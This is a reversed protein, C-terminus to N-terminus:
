PTTCLMVIDLRIHLAHIVHMASKYVRGKMVRDITHVRQLDQVNTHLFYRSALVAYLSGCKVGAVVNVEPVSVRLGETRRECLASTGRVLVTRQMSARAWAKYTDLMGLILGYGMAALFFM